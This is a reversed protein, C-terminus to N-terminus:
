AGGVCCLTICASFGLCCYKSSLASFSTMVLRVALVERGSLCCSSTLKVHRKVLMLANKSADDSDLKHWLELMNAPAVSRSDYKPCVGPWQSAPLHSLINSTQNQIVNFLLNFEFKVHQCQQITKVRAAAANMLLLVHEYM